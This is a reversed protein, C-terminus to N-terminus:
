QHEIPSIYQMSHLRQLYIGSTYYTTIGRPRRLHPHARLLGIDFVCPTNYRSVMSVSRAKITMLFMPELREAGLLILSLIITSFLGVSVFSKRGINHLNHNSYSM